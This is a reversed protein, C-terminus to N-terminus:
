KAKSLASVLPEVEAYLCFVALNINFSESVHRYLYRKISLRQDGAKLKLLDEGYQRARKPLFGQAAEPYELTSVQIEVSIMM